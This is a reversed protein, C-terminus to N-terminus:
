SSPTTPPQQHKAAVEEPTPPQPHADPHSGLPTGDAATTPDTDIDHHAVDPHIRGDDGTHHATVPEDRHLTGTWAASTFAPLHLDKDLIIGLIRVALAAAIVTIFMALYGQAPMDTFEVAALMGFMPAAMTTSLFAAAGMLAFAAVPVSPLLPHLVTGIIGGCLAGLSFAPILTGGVTGARFCAIIAVARIVALFILMWLAMHDQLIQEAAWRGSGSVGPVFHAAVALGLFVIPMEWLINAGLPRAAAAKRAALGFGHGLLGAVMGVTVAAILMPSSENLAVGTFIPHPQLILGATAVATASTLMTTVITRTSMELLLLELAFLAGALPLHFSAALGAGAASAVLIRRAQADLHFSHALRSAALGGLLRPANERGVPAGAAVTIVQTFASLLTEIIPMPTGQMAGPVSVAPRGFRKLLYWVWSGVLGVLFLTVSLRMPSVHSGLFISSYHTAGYLRQEVALVTWNLAATLLGTCIGALIAFFSLRNLPTEAIPTRIQPGSVPSAGSMAATNSAATANNAGTQRRDTSTSAQATGTTPQKTAAATTAEPQNVATTPSGAPPTKTWTGPMGPVRQWHTHQKNSVTARRAKRAKRRARRRAIRKIVPARQDPTAIRELHDDGIRREGLPQAQEDGPRVHGTGIWWGVTIGVM